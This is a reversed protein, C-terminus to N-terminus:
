HITTHILSVLKPRIIDDNIDGGLVAFLVNRLVDGYLFQLETAALPDGRCLSVLDPRCAVILQDVKKNEDTSAAVAVPRDKTTQALLNRLDAPATETDAFSLRLCLGGASPTSLFERDIDARHVLFFTSLCIAAFHTSPTLDLADFIVLVNDDCGIHLNIQLHGEVQHFHIGKAPGLAVDALARMQISSLDRHRAHALFPQLTLAMRDDAIGNAEAKAITLLRIWVGLEMYPPYLLQALRMAASLLPAVAKTPALCLTQRVLNVLRTSPHSGNTTQGCLAKEYWDLSKDPRELDINAVLNRILRRADDPSYSAFLRAAEAFDDFGEDKRGLGCRADGRSELASAHHDDAISDRLLGISYTAFQEAEGYLKSRYLPAGEEAMQVLTDALLRTALGDTSINKISSAERSAEKFADIAGQLNGSQRLANGLGIRNLAALYRDELKTAIEIAERATAIALDLQSDRRYRRTLMNCMWARRRLRGLSTSTSELETLLQEAEFAGGEIMNLCTILNQIAVQVGYRDGSWEFTSKAKRLIAIAEDYRHVSILVVSEEIALRSADASRGEEEYRARVKRLAALDDPRLEQRVRRILRQDSVIQRLDDDQLADGIQTAEDIAAIARKHDGSADFAQALALLTLALGTREGERRQADIIYQFPEISHTFRGESSAQWAARRANALARPADFTQYAKFAAAYRRSKAFRLGLRQLVFRHLGARRALAQRLEQTFDEHVLRFGSGDDVIIDSLTSLRGELEVPNSSSCLKCLDDLTLAETAAVVYALLEQTVADGEVGDASDFVLTAPPSVRRRIDLPSLAASGKALELVSTRTNDPLDRVFENLELESLAPVDIRTASKPEQGERTGVVVRSAEAESSLEQLIAALELPEAPDDIIIPSRTGRSWVAKLAAAANEVAVHPEPAPATPDIASCLLELLRKIPLGRANVYPTSHLKAWQSLLVTKGVGPPGVVWTIKNKAIAAGLATELNPRRVIPLAKPTISALVAGPDRLRTDLAARKDLYRESVLSSIDAAIQKELEDADGFFYATLPGSLAEDVLAKLRPDRAADAKSIYLLVDHGYEVARRYEDEIGSIKQEFSPDIYGYSEKWVIICIQSRQLGELYVSRPPHPRAGIMEFLIPEFGFSEIAKRAGARELSCEKITSSVFLTLRPYPQATMALM